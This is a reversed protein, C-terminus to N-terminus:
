PFLMSDLSSYFRNNNNTYWRWCQFFTAQIAGFELVVACLACLVNYMNTKNACHCSFFFCISIFHFFCVSASVCFTCNVRMENLPDFYIIQLNEVLDWKSKEGNATSQQQERKKIIERRIKYQFHVSHEPNTSWRLIWWFWPCGEIWHKRTPWQTSFM